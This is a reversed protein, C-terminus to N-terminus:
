PSRGPFRGLLHGSPSIAHLMLSAHIAKPTYGALYPEYPVPVCDLSSYWAVKGLKRM